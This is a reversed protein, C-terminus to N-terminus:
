KQDEEEGMGERAKQKAKLLRNMGEGPAQKPADTPAPKARIPEPKADAGGLAVPATGKKIQEASAEFKVKATQTARKVAERAQTELQQPTLNTGREAMKVKAQERAARLGGMQEGAKQERGKFGRAVASAIAVVDIRVRRIGVDMLFLAVGTLAVWLWIARTAVPMKLGDRRWLQDARPNGSLVRGGTMEAVQRLLPANDELTRFEDAFPRNVAAQVSGELVGGEVKEDPAAFRMSLVYSGPRDTQVVGQYRGPSVQKLDVDLGEGEPLALRGKFNAFNLREGTSDLADVTIVTQDGKNETTVRVNASGGPRMIWRVQQEWFQKYGDWSVWATNWRSTADSTYAITKGLGYQWQALIPDGEKGKMTVLALGDREATVIYGTISPVGSLGRLSDVAGAMVTPQFAPGEWILSRRVTQAEKIFIQPITALGAATNIHYHRGGTYKSIHQMRGTDGGSHPYVGVTSITIKKEVFKDLLSPPPTSPDGDSIMIMHRQGAEAAVLGDYALQVSPTFDPMDGFMLNNISRKVASGDGVPQLKHVWDTGGNWGYEIIGVLDLRSLSNVAAECTKKGLFVGDPAEVSHIVLALAGRPMQRKQPPDLKIPLADELPSGIWGGAGFSDPGGVMLLGGGTDHVYQRLDEQQKQTYGYASQNFLVVADFANLDTLSAPFNDPTRIETRIESKDMAAVFHAAADADNTMVLVRGEGQVFTVAMSRNNQTLADGVIQGNVTEPEFVAEFRQPGNFLAKVPVSLVNLGAKLEVSSGLADTDPDLDISQGNMLITLRGRAARVAQLVVRLNLTEGERASAPAVLRDVLVENEYKYELPYVDIPVGLAKATEAAQLISGVTENGDSALVLRNAADKPMVAIALRLAASLNTGDLAGIHQKEVEKNLKSPLAQVFADKAATVMGLRDERSVTHQAADKFYSEVEKQLSQPISDSADFIATVAVDRAEKRWQPEALAGAVLAIVILRVALAVWKTVAGLGSLSRAGILFALGGLIPVLLLFVPRDFQIPGIIISALTPNM